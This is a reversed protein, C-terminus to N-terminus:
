LMTRVGAVLQEKMPTVEVPSKPKADLMAPHAMAYQRHIM